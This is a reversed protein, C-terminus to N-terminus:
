RSGTAPSPRASVFKQSAKRALKIGIETAARAPSRGLERLAAYCERNGQLIAGL